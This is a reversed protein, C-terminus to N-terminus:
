DGIQHLNTRFAEVAKKVVPEFIDLEAEVRYSNDILITRDSVDMLDNSTSVGELFCEYRRMEENSDRVLIWTYPELRRIIHKEMLLADRMYRARAQISFSLNFPLAHKKEEYSSYGSRGGVSVARSGRAPVRYAPTAWQWRVMDPDIGTQVIKISPLISRFIEPEGGGLSIPVANELFEVGVLGPIEVAFVDREEPVERSEVMQLHRGGLSLIMGEIFNVFDVEGTREYDV